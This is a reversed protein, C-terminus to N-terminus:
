VTPFFSYFITVAKILIIPNVLVPEVACSVIGEATFAEPFKKRILLMQRVTKSNLKRKKKGSKAVM